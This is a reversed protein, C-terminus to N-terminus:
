GLRGIEVFYDLHFYGNVLLFLGGITQDSLLLVKDIFGIENVRIRSCVM